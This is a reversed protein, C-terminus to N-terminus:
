CHYRGNKISKTKDTNEYKGGQFNCNEEHANIIGIACLYAYIITTGVFSMGRKKLDKSIKDFLESRTENGDSIITKGNTWSWIYNDFSGFDSQIELFSKANKIASKIKLKHRILGKNQILDAVKKEDYNAIKKVDFHDFAQRFNERKHLICQWSLGAQFGELTLMEFLLKEDHVPIGWEHDHYHIYEKDKLDVWSCRM